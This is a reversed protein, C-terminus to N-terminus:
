AEKGQAKLFERVEHEYPMAPATGQRTVSLAAVAAAFSAAEFLDKGESLAAVLGGNFADGAGTTDVAKVMYPPVLAGKQGDYVYAGQSGLTIVVAKAGMEVFALAAKHASEADTVEIGTLYSAEVENPTVIDVKSLLGEPMPQVPATNLVVLAGNKKAIDMARQLASMNTEFQALFIDGGAIVSAVSDVEEDAIAGCAGIVVLIQNQATVEDVAILAAGTQATDDVLICPLDFGEQRFTDLAMRGFVDDGVKTIFDIDAGARKAAIAQNSGKGGPGVKFSTGMVTEAPKPLHQARGTLDAVFSGFCVIKKKM